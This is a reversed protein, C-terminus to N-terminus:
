YAPVTIIILLLKCSIPTEIIYNQLSFVMLFLKVLNATQSRDLIIYL